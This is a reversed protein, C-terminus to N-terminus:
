ALAAKAKDFIADFGAPDRVAIESMIKRDLGIGAKKLGEVFRSYTLGRERAAANLRVIWLRRITRKKTKRHRTAYAMGREVTERASRVLKRRGGVNGKAAKLIRKKRRRAAAGIKTRPM